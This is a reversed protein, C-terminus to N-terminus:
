ITESCGQTPESPIEHFRPTSPIESKKTSSEANSKTSASTPAPSRDFTFDNM